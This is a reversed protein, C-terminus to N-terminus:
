GDRLAEKVEPPHERGELEDMCSREHGVFRWISGTGKVDDTECKHSCRFNQHERGTSVGSASEGGYTEQDDEIKTLQGSPETKESSDEEIDVLESCTGNSTRSGSPRADNSEVSDDECSEGVDCQFSKERSEGENSENSESTRVCYLCGIKVDERRVESKLKSVISDWNQYVFMTGNRINEAHKTYLGEPCNKTCIDSENDESKIYVVDYKDSHERLWHWRIQIHKTRPGVQQNKVLFIAGTNDEMIAAPLVCVGWETMLSIMFLIEQVASSLSIYEAETSSLTVTPQTKSVWNTLVGGVNFMAGSVSRRDDKNKAYDSDVCAGPRMEKPKRYTLKLEDANNKLFAVLREVEKWHEPGPSQFHRTLERVPNSTEAAIKQGLYMGKGVIQRYVTQSVVEGENKMLSAGPTGPTSCAKTLEKGTHNEYIDVISQVMKPM